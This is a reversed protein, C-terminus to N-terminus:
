KYRDIVIKIVLQVCDECLIMEVYRYGRTPVLEKSLRDSHKKCNQCNGSKYENM